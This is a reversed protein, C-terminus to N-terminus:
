EPHEHIFRKSLEGTAYFLRSKVTGEPCELIQAIERISLRIKFRLVILARQDESLRRLSERLERADFNPTEAPEATVFHKEHRRKVGIRRYENKCMNSAARFLWPRFARKSDFLGPREFLKMFLDHAFDRAKDIDHNFAYYFYQTLLHAYRLYLCDFAAASRKDRLQLMQMLEEDSRNHM